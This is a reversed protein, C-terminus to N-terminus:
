ASRADATAAALANRFIASAIRPHNRAELLLRATPVALVRAGRAVADHSRLFEGGLAGEGVVDGASRSTRGAGDRLEVAGEVVCFLTDAFDGRAYLTEGDTVRRDVVSAAIVHSEQVRLRSFFQARRLYFMREVHTLAGRDDRTIAAFAEAAVGADLSQLRGRLVAIGDPGLDSLAQAGILRELRTGDLAADLVQM